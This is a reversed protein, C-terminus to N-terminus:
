MNATLICAVAVGASEKHFFRIRPEETACQDCIQDNADTSDDDGFLMQLDGYTM